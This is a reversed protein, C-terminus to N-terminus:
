EEQEVIKDTGGKVAEMACDVCDKLTKRVENVRGNPNENNWVKRAGENVRERIREPANDVNCGSEGAPCREAAYATISSAFVVSALFIKYTTM